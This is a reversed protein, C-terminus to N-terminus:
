CLETYSKFCKTNFLAHWYISPIFLKLVTTEMDEKFAAVTIVTIKNLFVYHKLKIQHQVEQKQAYTKCWLIKNRNIRNVMVWLSAEAEEQRTNSRGPCYILIFYEM